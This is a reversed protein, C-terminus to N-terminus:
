VHVSNFATSRFVWSHHGVNGWAGVAGKRQLRGEAQQFDGADTGRCEPSKPSKPPGFGKLGGEQMRSRVKLRQQEALRKEQEQKLSAQRASSYQM